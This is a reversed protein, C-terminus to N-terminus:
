NKRDKVAIMIKRISETNMHLQDLLDFVQAFTEELLEEAKELGLVTVYTAKHNKADSSSKGMEESTKTVDFIDDQIQYALGFLEGIEKLTQVDEERNAYIAPAVLSISLLQGTKNRHVHRLQEVTVNTANELTMDEIQGLIMGNEGAAKALETILAAIKDTRTMAMVEFAKTLLGDGALIATAEDFAKHCTLKGRRYDDDDMAPLDDHILSYTHIMEIAAAIPYGEQLPINCGELVSFVIQPRFRKGGALLSYLEAEQVKSCDKPFLSRLYNEFDLM